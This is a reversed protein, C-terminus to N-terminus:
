FSIIRIGAQALLAAAVGIGPAESGCSPSDAKLLALEIRQMRALALTMRAGRIFAASLDRGHIDLVRARAALM